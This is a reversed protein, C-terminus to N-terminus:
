EYDRNQNYAICTKIYLREYIKRHMKIVFINKLSYRLSNYITRKKLSENVIHKHFDPSQLNFHKFSIHIKKM